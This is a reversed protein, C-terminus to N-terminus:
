WPGGNLKRLLFSPRRGARVALVANGTHRRTFLSNFDSKDAVLRLFPGHGNRGPTRDADVELQLGLLLRKVFYDHRSNRRLGRPSTSLYRDTPNIGTFELHRVRIGAKRLKEPCLHRPDVDPTRGPIHAAAEAEVNERSPAYAPAAM